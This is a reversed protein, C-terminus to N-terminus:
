EWRRMQMKMSHILSHFKNLSAFGDIYWNIRVWSPRTHTLFTPWAYSSLPLALCLYMIRIKANTDENCPVSLYKESDAQVRWFFKHLLTKIITTAGTYFNSILIAFHNVKPVRHHKFTVAHQATQLFFCILHVWCVWSSMACWRAIPHKIKIKAAINFEVGRFENGFTDVRPEPYSIYQRQGIFNGSRSMPGNVFAYRPPSSNPIVASLGLQQGSLSKFRSYEWAFGTRVM